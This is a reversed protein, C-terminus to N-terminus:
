HYVRLLSAFGELVTDSKKDIKVFSIDSYLFNLDIEKLSVNAVQPIIAHDKHFYGNFM